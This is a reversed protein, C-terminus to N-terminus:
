INAKPKAKEDACSLRIATDGEVVRTLRGVRVGIVTKRRDGQLPSPPIRWGTPRMISDVEERIARRITAPAAIQFSDYIRLLVPV